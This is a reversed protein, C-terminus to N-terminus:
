QVHENKDGHRQAFVRYQKIKIPTWEPYNRRMYAKAFRKLTEPDNYLRYLDPLLFSREIM